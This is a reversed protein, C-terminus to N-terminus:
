VAPDSSDPVIGPARYWSSFSRGHCYVNQTERSRCINVILTPSLNQSFQTCYNYQVNQM